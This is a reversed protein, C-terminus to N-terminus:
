EGFEEKLKKFMELKRAKLDGKQQEEKAARAAYEEDTELRKYFVNYGDREEAWRSYVTDIFATERDGEPIADVIDKLRKIVDTVKGEFDLYSYKDARACVTVKQKM